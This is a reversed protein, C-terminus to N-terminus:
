RKLLSATSTAATRVCEMFLEAAPSLTRNKLTFLAVPRTQIGLDIPLPEMSVVNGKISRIEIRNFVANSAEEAVCRM